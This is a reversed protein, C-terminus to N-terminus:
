KERRPFAFAALIVATGLAAFILLTDPKPGSAPKASAAPDGDPMRVTEPAPQAGPLDPIGGRQAPCKCLIVGLVIPLLLSKRTM